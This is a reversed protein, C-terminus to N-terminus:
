KRRCSRDYDPAMPRLLWVVAVALPAYVAIQVLAIAAVQEEVGSHVLGFVRRQILDMGPPTVLHVWALDGAAVAFAALWAALLARWRQPLAVRWLIRLPSLGDLAAAALVDSSLSRFSHWAILTALPLARISQAVIPALPTHDYLILLWSKSAGAWMLRPPLDHNFLQILAVGVLPGPITASLVIAAIAPGSRRGGGCALWALGVGVVLALTAAAAAVRLTWSFDVGFRQPASTVERLAVLASWSRIRTDGEHLVVFGAKNILSALPVLLLVLLILWLLAALAPRWWGASFVLSGGTRALKRRQTLKAVMWLAVLVIVILGAVGPLVALTAEGADATRSFTSYFQETYTREFRERTANMLFINTVTMESTTGVVTWIAAAVVFPLSQPLTIRWLVAAPSAVLLASEEQARDVQSLGLGVILAVWPVAALGHVVIAGRMGAVLPHELSGFGLTWWGIRGAAAEWGSLQVYLPLLLVVGLAAAAIRRGPLDVRAVLVALLTGLPLAISVAGAALRASNALARQTDSPSCAGIAALACVALLPVGLTQRPFRFPM